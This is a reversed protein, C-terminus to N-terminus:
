RHARWLDVAIVAYMALVLATEFLTWIPIMM